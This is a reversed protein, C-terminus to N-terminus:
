EDLATKWELNSLIKITFNLFQKVYVAGYLITCTPAELKRQKVGARILKDGGGKLM